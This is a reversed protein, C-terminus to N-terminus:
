TSCMWFPRFFINRRISRCRSDSENGRTVGVHDQRRVWDVELEVEKGEVDLEEGDLVRVLHISDLKRRLCGEVMYAKNRGEPGLVWLKGTDCPQGGGKMLECVV